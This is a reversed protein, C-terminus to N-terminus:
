FANNDLGGCLRGATSRYTKVVGTSTDTVKLTYDLDSLAGWFLAIRNGFDLMKVMLEVNSRDGFTFTGTVNSLAAAGGVGSTGNAPNRWDVEVAFRSKLLCLTSPGPRCTAAAALPSKLAPAPLLSNAFDQDIGGCDGATNTYNQIQGTRTDTVELNYRLNTLQGWFVKVVDGFDLIKVLLEVNSPDGFSFFGTVNSRPIPKGVGNTGDFQNQWSVRVRFRNSLLCLTDPGPKCPAPPDLFPRISAFSSSFAGDVIASQFDCIEPSQGVTGLLQGVVTGNSLVVPSGSSGGSMGGSIQRAYIFRPRPLSGLQQFATDVQTEAFIQPHISPPPDENVPNSLRFLHTGNTVPSASWGLLVRGAPLKSLRLLTFDSAAGTAVLSSGSVRPLRALSPASGNCGARVYDFFVELGSAETQTDICHNATLFFPVVTRSDLDNLLGGTCVSVFGPSSPTEMHAIAKRVLDVGPFRNRDICQGDVFCAQDEAVNLSKQLSSPFIEAIRDVTFRATAGRPVEVELRIEPGGVSPTWLGGEPDRLEAGFPGVTEGGSGYVWLRAGQPLRVSSLHLRLRWGEEVRVGAGWVATGARAALLGGAHERVEGAAPLEGLEVVRAESLARQIGIRYPLKGADNWEQVEQLEKRAAFVAPKLEALPRALPQEALRLPPAIRVEELLTSPLVLPGASQACLPGALLLLSVLLRPANM